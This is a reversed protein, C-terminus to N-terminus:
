FKLISSLKDKLANLGCYKIESDCDGCNDSWDEFIVCDCFAIESVCWNARIFFFIWIWLFICATIIGILISKRKSM